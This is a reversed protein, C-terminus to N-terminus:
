SQLPDKHRQARAPWQGTEPQRALLARIVDGLWERPLICLMFPADMLLSVPGTARNSTGSLVGPAFALGDVPWELGTSQGSVPGMPFLSVRTGATVPLELAPPCLFVIDEGGLVICARDARRVLTHFAALQHDIRGGTFGIALVLPADVSRLAKDFDTSNQEAIPHLREPPIQARAETGISDMDGIVAALEANAALAVHAGSDAAVIVDTFARAQPLDEPGVTGGGLIIVPQRSDVITKKV